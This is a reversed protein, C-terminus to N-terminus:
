ILLIDKINITNKPPEQLGVVQLVSIAMGNSLLKPM